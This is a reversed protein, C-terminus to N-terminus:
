PTNGFLGKEVIDCLIHGIMIHAEQIRPTDFSPIILSLDAFKTNEGGGKGLLALSTIGTERAKSFARTINSSGGSTSIGILVDGKSGFAEVQREFIRSFDYDNGISTLVSTNTNLAIAPLAKRELRFRGVFEGAIHQADAASGGNGCILLKNGSKFANLIIGAMQDITEIYSEKELLAQKLKSSENIQDIIFTNM